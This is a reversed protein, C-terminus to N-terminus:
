LPALCPMATVERGGRYLEPLGAGVVVSFGVTVPIQTDARGGSFTEPGRLERDSERTCRQAAEYAQM